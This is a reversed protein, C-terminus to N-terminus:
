GIIATFTQAGTPVHVEVEGTSRMAVGDTFTQTNILLPHGAITKRLFASAKLHLGLNAEQLFSEARGLFKAETWRQMAAMQDVGSAGEGSISMYGFLVFIAALRTMM